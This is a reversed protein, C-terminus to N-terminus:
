RLEAAVPALLAGLRELARRERMSVQQHSIGIRRAIEELTFTNEAGRLGFRLALVERQKGTLKGICATVLSALDTRTAASSPTPADADALTERLPTSADPPTEDLAVAPQLLREAAAAASNHRPRTGAKANGRLAESVINVPASVPVRERMLFNRIARKVWSQAYAGFSGGDANIRDIAQLLALCGEQEADDRQHPDFVIRQALARVLTRHHEFLTAQAQKYRRQDRGLAATVAAALEEWQSPSLHADTDIARLLDVDWTRALRVGDAAPFLHRVHSLCWRV